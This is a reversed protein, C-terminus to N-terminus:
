KNFITYCNRKRIGNGYTGDASTIQLLIEDLFSYFIDSNYDTPNEYYYQSLFLLISSKGNFGVDDQFSGNLIIYNKFRNILSEM